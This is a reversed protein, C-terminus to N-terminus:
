LPFYINKDLIDSMINAISDARQDMRISSNRVLTDVMHISGRQVLEQLTEQMDETIKRDDLYNNVLVFYHVKYTHRNLVQIIESIDHPGDLYLALNLVFHVGMEKHSALVKILESIFEQTTLRWNNTGMVAFKNHLGFRSIAFPAKM